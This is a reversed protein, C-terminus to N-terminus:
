NVIELGRFTDHTPSTGDTDILPTVQPTQWWLPGDFSPRRPAKEREAFMPACNRCLAVREGMIVVQCQRQCEDCTRM